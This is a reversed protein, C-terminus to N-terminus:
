PRAVEKFTVSLTVARRQVHGGHPTIRYGEQALYYGEDGMPPKWLFAKFGGHRNLFAKIPAIDAERGRFVLPWSQKTNNIGDAATQEYGDGFKATLTAHTITAEPETLPRWKFVEPM